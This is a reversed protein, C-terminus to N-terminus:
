YLRRYDADLSGIPRAQEIFHAIRELTKEPAARYRCEWVTLVRWGLARLARRSRVDRQRNTTIKANWYRRNSKPMRTLRCGHGHWFCSNLFVVKNRSPFVLDPTGPLRRVHLRYRLGTRHLSSRIALEFKSDKSKVLAMQASRAKSTVRHVM